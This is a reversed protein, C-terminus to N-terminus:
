HYALGNAVVTFGTRKASVCTELDEASRVAALRAMAKAVASAGRAMDGGDPACSATITPRSAQRTPIAGRRENFSQGQLLPRRRGRTPDFPDGNRGGSLRRKERNSIM